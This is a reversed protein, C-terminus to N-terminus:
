ISDKNTFPALNSETLTKTAGAMDDVPAKNRTKSEETSDSREPQPGGVGNTAEVM